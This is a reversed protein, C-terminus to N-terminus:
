ETPRRDLYPEGAALLCSASASDYSLLIAFSLIPSIDIDRTFSWRMSYARRGEAPEAQWAKGLRGASEEDGDGGALRGRGLADGGHQRQEGVRALRVDGVVLRAGRQGLDRACARAGAGVAELRARLRRVRPLRLASAQAGVAGLLQVALEAAHLQLLLGAQVAARGRAGLGVAEAAALRGLRGPSFAGNVEVIVAVAVTGVACECLGGLRRRELGLDSVALPNGLCASQDGVQQGARASVMDNGHVQM